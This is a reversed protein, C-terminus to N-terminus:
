TEIEGEDRPQGERGAIAALIESERWRTSGILKLPEPIRGAKALRWVQRSSVGLRAGVEGVKLLRDSEIGFSGRTPRDGCSPCRQPCSGSEEGLPSEVDEGPVQEGDRVAETHGGQHYGAEVGVVDMPCIAIHKAQM